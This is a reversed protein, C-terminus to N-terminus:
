SCAQQQLKYLETVLTYDLIGKNQDNILIECSRSCLMDLIRTKYIVLVSNNKRRIEISHGDELELIFETLSTM